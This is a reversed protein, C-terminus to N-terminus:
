LVSSTWATGLTLTLQNGQTHVLSEGDWFLPSGLPGLGWVKDAGSIESQGSQLRPLWGVEEKLYGPSQGGWLCAGTLDSIM